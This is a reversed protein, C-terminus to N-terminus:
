MRQCRQQIAKNTPVRPRGSRGPKRMEKLLAAEKAEAAEKAQQQAAEKAQAAENAHQQQRRKQEKRPQPKQEKTAAVEKKKSSKKRQKQAKKLKRQNTTRAKIHGPCVHLKCANCLWDGYGSRSTIIEEDLGAETIVKVFATRAVTCFWCREVPDIDGPDKEIADSRYRSWADKEKKLAKQKESREEKKKRKATAAEKRRQGELQREMMQKQVEAHNLWTTGQQNLARDYRPAKGQLEESYMLRELNCESFVEPTLTGHKSASAVFLEFHKLIQKVLGTRKHVTYSSCRTLHDRANFPSLGLYGQKIKTESYNKVLSARHRAICRAVLEVKQKSMTTKNVMARQLVSQEDKPLPEEAGNAEKEADKKAQTTRREEFIRIIQNYFLVDFVGPLSHEEKSMFSHDNKHCPSLDCPQAQGSLGSCIKVWRINDDDTAAIEDAVAKLQSSEGDLMVVAPQDHMGNLARTEEVEKMVVEKNFWAAFHDKGEANGVNALFVVYGLEKASKSRHYGPLPVIALEGVPMDKDVITVVPSGMGGNANGSWVVHAGVKAKKGNAAKAGSKNTAPDAKKEAATRRIKCGATSLSTPEALSLPTSDYNFLLCSSVMQVDGDQNTYTMAAKMVSAHQLQNKIDRMADIRSQPTKELKTSVVKFKKFTNAIGKFTRKGQPAHGRSELSENGLKEVLKKRQKQTMTCGSDDMKIILEMVKRKKAPSGHQILQGPPTLKWGLRICRLDRKLSSVSINYKAAVSAQTVRSTGDRKLKFRAKRETYEKVAAERNAVNREGNTIPFRDLAIQKVRGEYEIQEQAANADSADRVRRFGSAASKQCLRASRRPAFNVM